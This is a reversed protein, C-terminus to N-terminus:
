LWIPIYVQVAEYEEKTCVPHHWHFDRKERIDAVLPKEEVKTLTEGKQVPATTLGPKPPQSMKEPAITAYSAKSDVKGVSTTHFSRKLVPYAARIIVLRSTM